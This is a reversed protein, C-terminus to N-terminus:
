RAAAAQPEYRLEGRGVRVLEGKNVMHQIQRLLRRKGPEDTRGCTQFLLANSVTRTGGESLGLIVDRLRDMDFTKM